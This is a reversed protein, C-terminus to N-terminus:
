RLARLMPDTALQFARAAPRLHMLNLRHQIVGKLIAARLKHESFDTNFLLRNHRVKHWEGHQRRERVREYFGTGPLPYAITYSVYDLPLSSSFNISRILSDTTEGLYGVMFFGAAKIGSAVCAEVAARAQDPTIGKKMEKLVNEDGSEIGFFIRKCGARHMQEFLARDVHTVRSLCEWTLPLHAAEIAQALEMTRKYNLTFLDDSMWIHDYGLEAIQRMEAVVSEVPRASFLDGFVPKPCFDCRFPCGRTSMLPTTADKWHKRWYAIYEANPVDGRYPLPLHSMDKTRIRAAGRVIVGDRKFVLGPIEEFRRDDLHEMIRVITEEGEGVAVLDFQDVFTEPEGSPYPGGVVTLAKGRVQAALSLAEDQMTIMCYIGIVTPRLREIEALVERREMFTHDIHRVAYGARRLSASLYMLGLSPMIWHRGQTPARQPYVLVVDAREMPTVEGGARQHTLQNRRLQAPLSLGARGLRALARRGLNRLALVQLLDIASLSALALFGVAFMSAYVALLWQHMVAALPVIALAGLGFLAEALARLDGVRVYEQDRWEQGRQEIRHKPTRIFQGGPRLAHFLALMATLSMGAGVVQCLLSPLGSWWRRGLRTQAVIFGFWPSVAVVVVLVSADALPWPLGHRGLTLLLAPYCMLQLLMLPGIGYALLHVTAQLKVAARNRSRLVPVLLKFASQFSGTAWRSQQHRYADISVPLEEPVVLDELYAARWGRLQARYSLDLDETLTDASWGGSDEIASRRWVGATGTFNTFYGDASRVAQEVLFHFDIALAQLRTFWSYGEDLHGWRAQAFGISPDEFAGVTRRLFDRPPVFDADFIAIFPADTRALGYALAGAKFGIRTGRRVHTVHVGKLRWMVARRAVISTTGDDSDDLVQVELRSAPWDIACM